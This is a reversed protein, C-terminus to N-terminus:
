QWQEQMMQPLFPSPPFSLPHAVLLSFSQLTPQGGRQERGPALRSLAEPSQRGRAAVQLINCGDAPPLRNFTADMGRKGLFQPVM